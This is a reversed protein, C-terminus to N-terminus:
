EKDKLEVNIEKETEGSDWAGTGGSFIPNTFEVITDLPQYEGNVEGDMDKYEILFTQDRPFEINQVQYNGSEDTYSTDYGMVVRIYPLNDSTAESRVNGNVKFTAQPTGYAVPPLGYECGGISCATGFGLVTLLLSILTNYKKLLAQKM